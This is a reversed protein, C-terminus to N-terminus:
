RKSVSATRGAWGETVEGVPDALAAVQRLGGAMAGIRAESLRLRDVVTASVGGAQARAVDDANAHLIEECRQLLLDAATLLGADKTGTSALAVSRSARKARHGLENLSTM